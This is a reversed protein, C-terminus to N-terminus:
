RTVQPDCVALPVDDGIVTLPNAAPAATVQVTVALLPANVPMGDAGDFLAAGAVTGPAGPMPVAVAPLPSALTENVAGGLLPPLAIM